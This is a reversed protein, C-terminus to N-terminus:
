AANDESDSVWHEVTTVRSRITDVDKRILGLELQLLDIKGTLTSKCDTIAQMLATFNSQELLAPDPDTKETQTVINSGILLLPPVGPPNPAKVPTAHSLPNEVKTM